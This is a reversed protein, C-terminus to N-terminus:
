NNLNNKFTQVIAPTEDIYYSRAINGTAPDKDSGSWWVAAKIRPYKKIATFADVIWANKDGGHSACSFETIMFPQNFLSVYRDYMPKYLEDFSQWREGHSYYYTGTNYATLGIVDVYEDGPYYMIDENWKYNPFSQGNPNWVWMVNNAGNKRFIEFIYKYFEKFILTDRSTNFSSYPCWDGNMENGLRFLVPHGFDAVAKAYANLFSDHKGKLVAYVMNGEDKWETQLTLEVIKGRNYANTLLATVDIAIDNYPNRAKFDTYNLMLPFTYNFENEYLQLKSYDFHATDPEFIGWSMKKNEYFLKRYALNTEENWIHNQTVETKRISAPVTPVFTVFKDMLYAYGGLEYNQQITKMFITYVYDGQPIDILLYYNKDNKVRALKERSWATIHGRVSGIQQFGMYELKHDATNKLFKNSYNIYSAVGNKGVYQKYIEVRKGYNELVACVGSNSMDVTMNKDMQLAYGDVYNIFYGYIGRDEFKYSAATDLTEFTAKQSNADREGADIELSGISLVLIAAFFMMLGRALNRLKKIDFAM